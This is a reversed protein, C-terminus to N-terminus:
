TEVEDIESLTEDLLVRLGVQEALSHITATEATNVRLMIQRLDRRSKHSGKSIWILKSLVLDPRSAVPLTLGPMIEVQVARDLAGPVLERPYLDLKLSSGTDLLQFQRRSAVATRVTQENYLFKEQRLQALFLELREQIAIGEIVLDIDQTTRPDGYAIAAAGGTILFRIECTRLLSVARELCDRFEVLNFM